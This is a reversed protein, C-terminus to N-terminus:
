AQRLSCLCFVELPPCIACAGLATGLFSRRDVALNDVSEPSTREM